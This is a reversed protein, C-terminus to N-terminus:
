WAVVKRSVLEAHGGQTTVAGTVSLTVHPVTTPSTDETEPELSRHKTGRGVRAPMGRGRARAQPLDGLGVRADGLGGRGHYRRPSDGEGRSYGLVCNHGIPLNAIRGFAMSAQRCCPAAVVRGAGVIIERLQARSQQVRPEALSGRRARGGDPGARGIEVAEGLCGWHEM